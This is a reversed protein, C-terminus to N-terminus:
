TLPNSNPPAANLHHPMVWVGARLESVMLNDFAYELVGYGMGWVRYGEGLVMHSVMLNDFAYELLRDAPLLEDADQLYLTIKPHDKNTM